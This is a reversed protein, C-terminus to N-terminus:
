GPLLCAGRGRRSPEAREGPADKKKRTLGLQALLRRVSSYSISEDTEEQYRVQLEAITRDTQEEYVRQLVTADFHAAVGGGHPKACSRQEEKWQKQWNYLTAPSIEFQQAIEERKLPSKELAHLVRERLDSSYPEPM